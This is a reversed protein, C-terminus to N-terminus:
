TNGKNKEATYKSSHKWEQFEALPSSWLRKCFYWSLLHHYRMTFFYFSIYIKVCNKRKFCLLLVASRIHRNSTNLHSSITNCQIISGVLFFVALLSNDTSTISTITQPFPLPSIWGDMWRDMDASILEVQNMGEDTLDCLHNSCEPLLPYCLAAILWSSTEYLDQQLIM